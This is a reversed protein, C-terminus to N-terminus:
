KKKNYLKVNKQNETGPIFLTCDDTTRQQKNKM